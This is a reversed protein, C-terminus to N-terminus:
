GAERLARGVGRLTMRQGYLLLGARFVRAAGRLVLLSAGFTIVLSAVIQLAPVDTLGMRLMMAPPGSLPLLSLVTAVAGDPHQIMVIRLWLPLFAPIAVLWAIHTAERTSTTAAGIGAVLLSYLAYGGLFFLFMVGIMGPSTNISGLDPIAASVRPGLLAMSAVWLAMGLLTATGYALVKGALLGAPSVSTVLVEMMRNEKEESVGRMLVGGGIVISMLLVIAFFMGTLEANNGDSDEVVQGESSIKLRDFVAPNTVRAALGPEGTETALQVRLLARFLASANERPMFAAGGYLWGVTGTALYDAPLVFLDDIEGDRLARVGAERSTHLVVQPFGDLVVAHSLRGTGDVYGVEPGGGDESGAIGRVIPIAFALVGLIVPIALTPILYSKRRIYRRFEETFVVAAEAVTDRM